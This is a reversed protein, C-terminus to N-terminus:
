QKRCRRRINRAVYAIARRDDAYRSNVYDRMPSSRKTRSQFTRWTAGEMTDFVRDVFVVPVQGIASGTEPVPSIVAFKSSAVFDDSMPCRAYCDFSAHIGSGASFEVRWEQSSPPCGVSSGPKDLSRCPNNPKAGAGVMM